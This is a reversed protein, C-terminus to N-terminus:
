FYALIVENWLREFGRAECLYTFSYYKNKERKDTGEERLTEQISTLIDHRLPRM